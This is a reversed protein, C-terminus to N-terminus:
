RLRPSAALVQRGRHPDGEKPTDDARRRSRATARTRTRRPMTRGPRKRTVTRPRRRKARAKAEAKPKGREMAPVAAVAIVTGPKDFAADPNLAGLLDRSMHFREALMERVDTYGMAELSAQEEMKAPIKEVFPGATDAETITYDVIVPDISAAQLRDFVEQNLATTAPLGQAAAFASLAGRFNEGDRGDIAGPSFHMRGLLVQAKLLLADPRKGNAKSTKSQASKSKAAQKTEGAASPGFTAANVADRTLPAKAAVSVKAEEKGAKAKRGEALGPGCAAALALLVVLARVGSRGM